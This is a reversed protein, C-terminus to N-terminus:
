LAQWGAASQVGTDGYYLTQEGHPISVQIATIAAGSAGTATLGEWPYRGSLSELHSKLTAAPPLQATVGALNRSVKVWHGHYELAVTVSTSRGVPRGAAPLPVSSGDAILIVLDEAGARRL